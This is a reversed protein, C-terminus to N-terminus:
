HGHTDFNREFESPQVDWVWIGGAELAGPKQLAPLHPEPGVVVAGDAAPFGGRPVDPLPMGYTPPAESFAGPASAYAILACQGSDSGPLVLDASFHTVRGRWHAWRLHVLTSLAFSEREARGALERLTAAV